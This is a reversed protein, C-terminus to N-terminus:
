FKGKIQTLLLHLYFKEGASPYVVCMRGIVKYRQRVKWVANKKDWIFKKPFDQYLYDHAEADILEQKTNAEFWAMLETVKPNEVLDRINADARFVVNQKGPLHIPLCYIAPWEMHMAFDFINHCAQISSIYRADLYSHIEDAGEQQMTARDPGKYIYKHIYKIVKISGCVELNIHCNFKVLLERSHPIVHSNDFTNQNKQISRNNEPCAYDPYGDEKIITQTTFAKPFHKKCVNNEICRQPTCPGHLMYKSVAQHLQPHIAPDPIEALIIADVQEMTHIKDPEELFVLLHMHPLGRKQYEIIYVFGAVAGTVHLM